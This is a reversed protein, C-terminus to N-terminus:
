CHWASVETIYFDIKSSLSIGEAVEGGSVTPRCLRAMQLAALWGDLQSFAM